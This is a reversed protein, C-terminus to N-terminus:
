GNVTTVVWGVLGAVLVLALLWAKWWTSVRVGFLGAVLALLGGGGVAYIGPGLGFPDQSASERANESAGLALLGFFGVVVLGLALLPGLLVAPLPRLRTALIGLALAGAVWPLVSLITTAVRWSRQEKETRTGSEAHEVHYAVLAAWDRGSIARGEILRRVAGRLAEGEGRAALERDLRELEHRPLDLAGASQQHTTWPLFWGAAIAACGVLGLVATISGHAM